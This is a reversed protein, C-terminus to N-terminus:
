NTSGIGTLVKPNCKVRVVAMEDEAQLVIGVLFDCAPRCTVQRSFVDDAKEVLRSSHSWLLKQKRKAEILPLNKFLLHPYYGVLM